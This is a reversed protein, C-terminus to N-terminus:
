SDVAVGLDWIGLEIANRRFNWMWGCGGKLEGKLLATFTVATPRLQMLGMRKLWVEAAQPDAQM